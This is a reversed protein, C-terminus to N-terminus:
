KFIAGMEKLQKFAEEPNKFVIATGRLRVSDVRRGTATGHGGKVNILADAGNKSAEQRFMTVVENLNVKDFITVADKHVEVTGLVTYCDPSPQPGSSGIIPVVYGERKAAPQDIAGHSVFSTTSCGTLVLAMIALLFLRKMTDEQNKTLVHSRTSDGVPQIRENEGTMPESIRRMKSALRRASARDKGPGPNGKGVPSIDQCVAMRTCHGPFRPRPVQEDAPNRTAVMIGSRLTDREQKTPTMFYAYVATYWSQLPSIYM